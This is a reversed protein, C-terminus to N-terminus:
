CRPRMKQEFITKGNEKSFRFSLSTRVFNGFASTRLTRGLFALEIKSNIGSRFPIKGTEPIKETEVQYKKRKPYKKQQGQPIKEVEAHLNKAEVLPIKRSRARNKGNRFLYKERASHYRKRKRCKERKCFITKRSGCPIKERKPALVAFFFLLFCVILVLHLTPLLCFCVVVCALSRAVLFCPFVVFYAFTLSVFLIKDARFFHKVAAVCFAVFFLITCRFSVVLSCVLLVSFCCGFLLCVFLNVLPCCHVPVLLWFSTAVLCGVLGLLGALWFGFLWALCDGSM